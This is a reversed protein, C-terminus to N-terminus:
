IPMTTTTATNRRMSVPRGSTREGKGTGDMIGILEPLTVLKDEFVVKRIATISDAVNTGGIVMAFDHVM